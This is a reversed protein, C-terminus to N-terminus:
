RENGERRSILIDHVRCGEVAMCDGGFAPITWHEWVRCEPDREAHLRDLVGLMRSRSADIRCMLEPTM